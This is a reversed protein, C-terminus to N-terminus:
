DGVNCRYCGPSVPRDYDRDDCTICTRVNCRCDRAVPRDYDRDNCTICDRVNCRDCDRTICNDRDRADSGIYRVDYDRLYTIGYYTPWDPDFRPNGIGQWKFDNPNDLLVVTLSNVFSDQASAIDTLFAPVVVTSMLVLTLALYGSKKGPM